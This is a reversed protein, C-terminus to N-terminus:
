NKKKILVYILYLILVSLLLSIFKPRKNSFREFNPLQQIFDSGLSDTDKRCSTRGSIHDGSSIYSSKGFQSLNDFESCEEGNSIIKNAKYMENEQEESM